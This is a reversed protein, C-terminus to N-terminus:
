TEERTREFAKLAEQRVHFFGETLLRLKRSAFKRQGIDSEGGVERAEFAQLESGYPVPTGSSCVPKTQDLRTTGVLSGNCITVVLGWCM